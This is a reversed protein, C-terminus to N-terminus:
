QSVTHITWTFCSKLVTPHSSVLCKCNCTGLAWLTKHVDVVKTRIQSIVPMCCWQDGESTIVCVVAPNCGESEKDIASSFFPFFGAKEPSPFLCVHHCFDSLLVHWCRSVPLDPSDWCHWYWQLTLGLLVHSNSLILHCPLLVWLTWFSCFKIKLYKLTNFSHFTWLKNKKIVAEPHYIYFIFADWLQQKIYIYTYYLINWLYEPVQKM